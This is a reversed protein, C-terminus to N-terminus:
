NFCNPQDEKIADPVQRDRRGVWLASNTFGFSYDIVTGILTHQKTRLMLGVLSSIQIYMVIDNSRLYRRYSIMFKILICDVKFHIDTVFNTEATMM